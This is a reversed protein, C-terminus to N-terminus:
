KFPILHTHITFIHSNSIDSLLSVSQMLVSVSSVSCLSVVVVITAVLVLGASATYAFLLFVLVFHLTFVVFLNNHLFLPKVRTDDCGMLRNM